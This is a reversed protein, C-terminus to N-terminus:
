SSHQLGQPDVETHGQVEEKTRRRSTQGNCYFLQKALRDKNMRPCTDQVAFSHLTWCPKLVKYNPGVFYRKMLYMTRGALKCSKEWAVCTCDTWSKSIVGTAPGPKAAISSPHYCLLKTCMWGPELLSAGSWGFEHIFGSLHRVQVRSSPYSRILWTPQLTSANIFYTIWSMSCLITLFLSIWRLISSISLTKWQPSFIQMRSAPYSRDKLNIQM